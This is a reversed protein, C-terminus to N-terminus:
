SWQITFRQRPGDMTFLLTRLVDRGLLGHIGTNDFSRGLVELTKISHPRDGFVAAPIELSAPYVPCLASTGNTTITQVPANSTPAIALARMISEDITTTDAGTDLLLEAAIM